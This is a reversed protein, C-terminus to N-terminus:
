NGMLWEQLDASRDRPLLIQNNFFDLLPNIVNDRFAILESKSHDGNPLDAIDAGFQAAIAKLRVFEERVAQLAAAANEIRKYVVENNQATFPM